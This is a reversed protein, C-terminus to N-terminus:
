FKPERFEGFEARLAGMIEGVTARAKVAELIPPVLNQTGAAARRVAALARQM